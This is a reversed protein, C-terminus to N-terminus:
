WAFTDFYLADLERKGKRLEIYRPMQEKMVKDPTQIFYGFQLKKGAASSPFDVIAEYVSDTPAKDRLYVKKTNTLPFVNGKLYAQDRGPVFISDKLQPQLNVKFTVSVQAKTTPCFVVLLATFLVVSLICKSDFIRNKM